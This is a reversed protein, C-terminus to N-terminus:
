QGSRLFIFCRGVNCTKVRGPTVKGRDVPFALASLNTWESVAPPKVAEDNVIKLVLCQRCYNGASSATNKYLILSCVLPMIGSSWWLGLRTRRKQISMTLLNRKKAAMKMFVTSQDYYGLRFTVSARFRENRSLQTRRGRRRIVFGVLKRAAVFRLIRLAILSTFPEINGVGDGVRNGFTQTCSTESPDEALISKETEYCTRETDRIIANTPVFV